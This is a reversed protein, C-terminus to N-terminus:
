YKSLHLWDFTMWVWESQTAIVTNRFHNQCWTESTKTTSSLTDSRTVRVTVNHHFNFVVHSINDHHCGNLPQRAEIGCVGHEVQEPFVWFARTLCLGLGSPKWKPQSITYAASFIFQVTNLFPVCQGHKVNQLLVEDERMEICVSWLSFGKFIRFILLAMCHHLVM